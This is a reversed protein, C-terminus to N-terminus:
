KVGLMKEALNVAGPATPSYGDAGVMTAFDETIAGGGIMVRVKDRLGAKSLSDIVKKTEPATMSLLASMALIHPKLQGVAEIFKETPVDIGIDHVEFGRAILLSAVMGKGITHIDGSVTGIVVKGISKKVRGSKKIEEEIIPVAGQMADAAGVLEPLFYEGRGYGDGIERIGETLASLAELPDVKNEMAQRAWNAAAAANFEVVAKKLNELINTAM